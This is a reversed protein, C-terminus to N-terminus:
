IAYEVHGGVPLGIGLMHHFYHFSGLAVSVLRAGMLVGRLRIKAGAGLELAAAFALAM